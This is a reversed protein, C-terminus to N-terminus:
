NSQDANFQCMYSSPDFVIFPSNDTNPVPLNTGAPQRSQVTLVLDLMCAQLHANVTDVFQQYTYVYYYPSSYDQATTPVNPM